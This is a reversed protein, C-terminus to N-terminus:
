ARGLPSWGSKRIVVKPKSAEVAAKALADSSMKMTENLANKRDASLNPLATMAPGSYAAKRDNFIVNLGAAAVLDTFKENFNAGVVIFANIVDQNTKGDTPPKVM